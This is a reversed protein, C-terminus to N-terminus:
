FEYELLFRVTPAAAGETLAFLWAFEYKLAGGAIPAEHAAVDVAM